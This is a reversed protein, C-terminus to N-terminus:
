RDRYILKLNDFYFYQTGDNRPNWSSFYLKFYSADENEVLYPGINVYIKKWKSPEVGSESTPNLRFFPYEYISGDKYYLGILCTDSCKYDMELMVPAGTTPLDEFQESNALQFRLTDSTLVIRGSYSSYIGEPDHWAQPGNVRSISVDSTSTSELSVFGGDFDEIWRVHLNDGDPYYSFVPTLTVVSDRVLNIEAYEVPAMFPYEARTQSIGNVKIGPYVAVKHAGEKLVPVMAPLEFAGVIDDDIFVWVDTFNHTNAGYTYYDCSVMVTDIRIYSPVTQPGEFDKCSHLAFSFLFLFLILTFNRTM